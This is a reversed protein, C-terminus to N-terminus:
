FSAIRLGLPNMLGVVARVTGDKGGTDMSQLVLLVRRRSEGGQGAAYLKEQEAALSAGIRALEAQVWVKPQAPRSSLGPTSAPDTAALDGAVLSKRVRRAQAVLDDM